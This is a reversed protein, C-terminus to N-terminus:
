EEKEQEKEQEQELKQQKEKELKEAIVDNKIKLSFYCVFEMLTPFGKDPRIHATYYKYLIDIDNTDWARKIANQMAREISKESKKYKGVLSRALNINPDKMHNYIADVLYNFGKNKPNIGILEMERQIRREVLNEVQAPSAKKIQSVSTNKRIIAGQMLRITSAVYEPSFNADYKTLIFDAGLRRAQELTYASMTQTLVIVFPMQTPPMKYLQVLFLFGNGGGNHLELDLLVINPLYSNVLNLGINSDKTSEVLAMDELTDFYNQFELITADEDEILILTLKNKM